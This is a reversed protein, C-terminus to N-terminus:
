PSATENDVVLSQRCTNDSFAWRFDLSAGGQLNIQSRYSKIPFSEGLTSVNFARSCKLAVGVAAADIRDRVRQGFRAASREKDGIKSFSSANACRRRIGDDINNM